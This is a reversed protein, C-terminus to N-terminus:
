KFFHLTFELPDKDTPLMSKARNIAFLTDYAFNIGRDHMRNRLLFMYASDFLEPEYKSVWVLSFVDAFSEGFRTTGDEIKQLGNRLAYCHGVEHAVSIVLAAKDFYPLILSNVILRCRKDENFYQLLTPSPSRVEAYFIDRPSELEGLFIEEPSQAFSGCILGFFCFITAVIKKM